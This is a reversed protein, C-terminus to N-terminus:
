RSLAAPTRSSPEDEIEQLSEHNSNLSDDHIRNHAIYQIRCDRLEELNQCTNKLQEDQTQGYYRDFTARCFNGQDVERYKLNLHSELATTMQDLALSGERDSIENLFNVLPLNAGFIDASNQSAHSRASQSDRNLNSQCSKRRESIARSLQRLNELLQQDEDDRHINVYNITLLLAGVLDDINETPESSINANSAQSQSLITASLQSFFNRLTNLKTSKLKEHTEIMETLAILQSRPSTKMPFSYHRGDLLIKDDILDHPGLEVVINEYVTRVRGNSYSFRNLSKLNTQALFQVVFRKDQADTFQDLFYSLNEHEQNYKDIRVMFQEVLGRSYNGLVFQHIEKEIGFNEQSHAIKFSTGLFLTLNIALLSLMSCKM